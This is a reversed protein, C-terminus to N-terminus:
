SEVVGAKEVTMARLRYNAMCVLYLKFALLPPGRLGSPQKELGM